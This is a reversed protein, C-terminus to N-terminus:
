VDEQGEWLRVGKTRAILVWMLKGCKIETCNDRSDRFRSPMKQAHATQRSTQCSSSHTSDPRSRHPLTVRLRM